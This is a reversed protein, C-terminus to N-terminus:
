AQCVRVRDYYQTNHHPIRIRRRAYIIKELYLANLRDKEYEQIIIHKLEEPIEKKPRGANIGIDPVIGTAKFSRHLQRFRRTTIKLYTAAWKQTIKSNSYNTLCWKLRRKNKIKVM